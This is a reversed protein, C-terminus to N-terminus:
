QEQPISTLELNSKALRRALFPAMQPPYISFIGFFHYKLFIATFITFNFVISNMAGM